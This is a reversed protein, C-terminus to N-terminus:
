RVKKDILTEVDGSDENELSFVNQLQFPRTGSIFMNPLIILLFIFFYFFIIINLVNECHIIYMGYKAEQTDNKKTKEHTIKAVTELVAQSVYVLSM